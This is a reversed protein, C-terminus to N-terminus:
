DPRDPHDGHDDGEWFAFPDYGTALALREFMEVDAPADSILKLNGETDIDADIESHKGLVEGFIVTQGNIKEVDESEATFIGSLDGMRGCHYQFRYIGKM